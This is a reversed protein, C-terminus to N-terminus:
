ITIQICYATSVRFIRLQKLFARINLVVSLVAFVFIFPATYWYRGFVQDLALFIVCSRVPKTCIFDLPTGISGVSVIVQGSSSFDYHVNINWTFAIYELHGADMNQFAFALEMSIITEIYEQLTTANTDDFPGIYFPTFM